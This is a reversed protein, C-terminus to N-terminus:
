CVKRSLFQGVRYSRVAGTRLSTYCGTKPPTTPTTSECDCSQPLCNRHCAVCGSNNAPKWPKGYEPANPDCYNPKGCKCVIQRRVLKGKKAVFLAGDHDGVLNKKHLFDLCTYAADIIETDQAQVIDTLQGNDDFYYAMQNPIDIELNFLPNDSQATVGLVDSLKIRKVSVTRIVKENGHLQLEFMDNIDKAVDKVEKVDLMKIVNEKKIIGRASFVHSIIDQYKGGSTKDLILIQRAIADFFRVTSPASTAAAFLYTASTDRANKIATLQDQGDKMNKQSMKVIIEYFAGSFIRSFSHCENVIQNDPGESPLKEPETYNFAISMDRLCNKLSGDKGNTLHYVGIGMEAALRTLVNSKLLDGNTEQIAFQILEDHQLNELIAIMDGFAEHFAWIEAAQTSWLDPRLIDLYAHGFEHCVVSRSDCAYINKQMVQDGFYFFKLSGRDYYANIDKGARPLINLTNTVAWRRITKPTKSLAYSLINSVMGKCASAQQQISGLPFGGGQDGLASINLAPKGINEEIMLNPTTPDNLYMKTKASGSSMVMREKTPIVSLTEVFNKRINTHWLNKIWEVLKKM